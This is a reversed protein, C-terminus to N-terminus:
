DAGESVKLQKLSKEYRSAGWAGDHAVGVLDSLSLDGASFAAYKAPGLVARQTAAPQADFWDAGTQYSAAISTERIGSADVGVAGLIDAWSKTIPLAACACNPHSDLTEDLTHRTGDMALCMACTNVSKSASWLWGGCVDDNARYTAVQADRWAGLTETRAITLARAYSEAGLAQAMARATQQPNWGLAVGTFLTQKAADAAVDGWGRFLTDLPKGNRLRAAIEATAHTPLRTFSWAVGTPVTAGLLAVGAGAGATAADDRASTTAVLASHAYGDIQTTVQGLLADLRHERLLWAQSITEGRARAADMQATLHALQQVLTARTGVWASTLQAQTVAQRQLMARKRERAEGMLSM